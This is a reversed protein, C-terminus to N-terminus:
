YALLITFMNYSFIKRKTRDPIRAFMAKPLFKVRNVIVRKVEANQHMYSLKLADMDACYDFLLVAAPHSESESPLRCSWNAISRLDEPCDEWKHAFILTPMKQITLDAGRELHGRVLARQKEGGSDRTAHATGRIHQKALRACTSM